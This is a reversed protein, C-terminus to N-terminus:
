GGSDTPATPAATPPEQEPAPPHLRTFLGKITQIGMAVVGSDAYRGEVALRDAVALMADAIRQVEKQEGTM